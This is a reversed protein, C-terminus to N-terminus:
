VNQTRFSDHVEQWDHVSFEGRKFQAYRKDLENKQWESIPVNGNDKAISDWIEQALLLRQSISLSHIEDKIKDLDM